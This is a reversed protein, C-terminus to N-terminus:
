GAPATSRPRAAPRRPVAPERHPRPRPVVRPPAPQPHRCRRPRPRPTRLSGLDAPAHAAAVAAIRLFESIGGCRTVDTQLCDVAGAACMRQFYTLDSGYEGAAVDIVTQDRVERLGNLDDSSVPEEFWTVGHESFPRALRIAQKTTYAGNADVFLEASDGIAKRASMVRDLDRDTNTGWSDGIKIKVRSFGQGEVWGSLQDTLTEHDYTTFGGSGYLPVEDRVAGLVHHLPLELLRAKLDWLAIDVASIAYGAIGPRGANRVGDVMAKWCGPVDLASRGTIVPRLLEAVATRCAVPGYTWGTGVTDGASATVVVITTSDWAFTGDAEPQDTPVTYAAVQVDRIREDVLTM